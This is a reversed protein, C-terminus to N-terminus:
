TESSSAVRRVSRRGGFVLNDCGLYNAAAGCVIGAGGALILPAGAILALTFAVSSILVGVAVAAHYRTADSTFGRLGKSAGENWTFSRNLICNSLISVELATLWSVFGGLGLQIGLLWLVALNEGAGTAGVMGFKWFRGSSKVEKFLRLLHKLFLTGQKFTAKSVGGARGEFTYPVEELTQWACRVLIEILIKYGVPRLKVGQLVERRCVFFGSGPDQVAWLREHFLGRAFWRTAQSILRRSFTGLGVASGGRVYRSAVVIDASRSTARSLM